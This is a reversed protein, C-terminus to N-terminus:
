VEIDEGIIEERFSVIKLQHNYSVNFLFTVIGYLNSTLILSPLSTTQDYPIESKESKVAM